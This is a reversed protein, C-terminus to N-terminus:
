CKDLIVKLVLKLDIPFMLRQIGSADRKLFWKHYQGAESM